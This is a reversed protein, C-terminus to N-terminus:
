FVDLLFKHIVSRNFSSVITETFLFQKSFNKFNLSIWIDILVNFVMTKCRENNVVNFSEEAEFSYHRFRQAMLEMLAAHMPPSAFHKFDRLTLRPPYRERNRGKLKEAVHWWRDFRSERLIWDSGRCTYSFFKMLTIFPNSRTHQFSFFYKRIFSDSSFFFFVLKVNVCM